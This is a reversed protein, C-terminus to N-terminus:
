GRERVLPTPITLPTVFLCPYGGCSWPTIDRRPFCPTGFMRFLFEEQPVETDTAIRYGDLKLLTPSVSPAAAESALLEEVNVQNDNM